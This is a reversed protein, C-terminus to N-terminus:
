ERGLRRLAEAVVEEDDQLAAEFAVRLQPAATAEAAVRIRDPRLKAIAIAAAARDRADASGDEVIALLADETPPGADRFGAARSLLGRLDRIWVSEDREGRALTARDFPLERATRLRITENIRDAISRARADIAQHIKESFPGQKKQDVLLEQVVNDNEDFLRVVSTESMMVLEGDGAEARAIGDLAIFQEFGFRRVSIGDTGVTIRYPAMAYFTAFLLPLMTALFIPSKTTASLVPGIGMLLAAGIVLRMRRRWAEVSPARATFRAVAHAPDLGIEELARHATATDSIRLDIPLGHGRRLRVITGDIDGPVVVGSTIADRAALPRAGLMVVGDRLRLAGQDVVPRKAMARAIAAFISLLVVIPMAAVFVPSAAASLLLVTAAAGVPIMAALVAQKVRSRLLEATLPLGEAGM